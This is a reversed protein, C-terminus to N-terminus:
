PPDARVGTRATIQRGLRNERWVTYLAGAVILASGAYTAPAPLEGFVLFGIITAYILRAYDLAALASAEGARFARINCMQGAWSAMGVLLLLGWEELTPTKWYYVAIPLMILGVFFAQYTLITVPREVQSLKRIIIMVTGAAAAGAVAMAAYISFGTDGGPQLIVIVGLFGIATAAWRHPGVTEGLFLIALITLFFTKSFAIATADALPLHIIATFGALMAVSACCVRIVHLGPRQTKLSGPLGSIIVPAVIMTMIIQRIMIIEAVHLREGLIKILTVMATFFISAVLMWLIGRVNGPLLSLRDGTDRYRQALSRRDGPDPSGPPSQESPPPM